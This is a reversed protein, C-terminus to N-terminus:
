NFTVPLLNAVFNSFDYIIFKYKFIEIVISTKIYVYKKRKQM